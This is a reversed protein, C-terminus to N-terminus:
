SSPNETQATEHQSYAPCVKRNCSSLLVGLVFVIAIVYTLKKM